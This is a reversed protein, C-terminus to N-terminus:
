RQSPCQIPSLLLFVGPTSAMHQGKIQTNAVWLITKTFIWRAIAKLDTCRM